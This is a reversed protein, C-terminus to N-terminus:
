FSACAYGKVRLVAEQRFRSKYASVVARVAAEAPETEPHVLNLVYSTERAIMGDVSKWQGSAQWVTFGEPFRPTVVGRLFDSWEATTVASGPKATGFYLLEDVVRREGPMCRSGPAAGACAVLDVAIVLPLVLGFGHM